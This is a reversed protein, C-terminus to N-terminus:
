WLAHQQSNQPHTPTRTPPEIGALVANRDHIAPYDGVALLADLWGESLINVGAGARTVPLTQSWSLCCRSSFVTLDGAPADIIWTTVLYGSGCPCTPWDELSSPAPPVVPIRANRTLNHGCCRVQIHPHHATCDPCNRLRNSPYSM